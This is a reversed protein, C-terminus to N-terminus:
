KPRCRLDVGAPFDPAHAEVTISSPDQLGFIERLFCLALLALRRIDEDDPATKAKIKEVEELSIRAPNLPEGAYRDM